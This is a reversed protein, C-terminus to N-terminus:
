GLKVTNEDIFETPILPLNKPAPGLRIRGAHDYHSGHCPCFYGGYNGQDPVPICGLHTCIGECILWEPKLCREADTAPERMSAVIADDKRAEDIMEPTRRRIFVPKGRWKATFNQGERIQRLDVEVIGAAFVDKAPWMTHVLKCAIVRVLSTAIFGASCTMFYLWPRRDAHGIPLRNARFDLTGEPCTSTPMPANEAWGAPRFNEPSFKATSTIAPEKPDVWVDTRVVQAGAALEGKSLDPKRPFTPERTIDYHFHNYEAMGYTNHPDGADSQILQTPDHVVPHPVANKADEAFEAPTKQVFENVYLPTQSSPANFDSDIMGM